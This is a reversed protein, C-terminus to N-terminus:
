SSRTRFTSNVIGWLVEYYRPRLPLGYTPSLSQNIIKYINYFISSINYYFLHEVANNESIEPSFSHKLQRIHTEASWRESYISSIDTINTENLPQGSMLILKDDRNKNTFVWDLESGSIDKWFANVNINGFSINAEGNKRLRRYEKDDIM